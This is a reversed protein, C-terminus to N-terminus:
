RDLVVRPYRHYVELCLAGMATTYVRGGDFSWRDVPEWSGHRCDSEVAHQRDLVANKLATIWRNWAPGKVDCAQFMFFSGYYWYYFDVKLAKDDWVPLDALMLDVIPRVEAASKKIFVRSMGHIASLAPHDDFHENVGPKVVKGVRADLYGTRHYPDKTCEDYHALIGDYAKRDISLGALEAAKLAQAAWGTVSSDTDGSRFSYRWGKGPNQAQLTYDVARQAADRVMQSLTSGYDECLAFTAILHNYMYQPVDDSGVRGSPDQQSMLFRVAKGVVEGFCYGDYVDRSLHNYGAGEFALIALGTLGINFHENGQTPTCTGKRKKGCQATYGQASWSGDPNQHRALWLLAHLVYPWNGGGGPGGARLLERGGYPGGRKAGGGPGGGITDYVGKGKYPKDSLAEMSQGKMKKFDEDTPSENHEAEKAKMQVENTDRREIQLPKRDIHKEIRQPPPERPPTPASVMVVESSIQPPVLALIYLCVVAAIGHVVISIMWSPAAKAIKDTTTETAAFQEVFAESPDYGQFEPERTM